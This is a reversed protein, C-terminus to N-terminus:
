WQAEEFPSSAKVKPKPLLSLVAKVLGADAASGVRVNLPSGKVLTVKSPHTEVKTKALVDFTPRDFAQPTLLQMRNTPLHFAMPDGGDDTEVTTTRVPTALAVAPHNAAASMVAEVDTYPVAPRAADHLIVHTADASVAAAAAAVQDLWRPGGAVLKVGSFSLHPGYRDKAQDMDDATVMMVIQEVGPRNIFLEASRLLAERNDIRVFAGGAEHALGPPPATLLIVTFKAATPM